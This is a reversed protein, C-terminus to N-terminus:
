GQQRASILRKGGIERGLLSGEVLVHPSSDVPGVRVSAYWGGDGPSRGASTRANSPVLDSNLAEIEIEVVLVHTHLVM